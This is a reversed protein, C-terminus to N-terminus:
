GISRDLDSFNRFVRLKDKGSKIRSDLKTEKKLYSAKFQSEDPYIEEEVMNTLADLRKIIEDLKSEIAREKVEQVQSQRPM